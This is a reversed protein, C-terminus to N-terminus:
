VPIQALVADAQANAAITEDELDDFNCEPCNRLRVLAAHLEGALLALQLRDAPPRAGGCALLIPGSAVQLCALPSKFVQRDLSAQVLTLLLQPYWTVPLHKLCEALQEFNASELTPSPDPM